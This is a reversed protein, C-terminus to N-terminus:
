EIVGEAALWARVAPRQLYQRAIWAANHSSTFYTRHVFVVLVARPADAPFYGAVWAHKPVRERGDPFLRPEDAVDASGTKAAMVFGLETESLSKHATGGAENSVTVLARRVRGLSEASLEIRRTEPALPAGGLERVLRVEPLRGTALGATARAIQMPTAEVIGLGNSAELFNRSTFKKQFLRPVSDERLGARGGPRENPGFSKVGTPQGFGFQEAMAVFDERTFHAEGLWAFYSNCSGKLAGALDVTGHGHALWCGLGKYGADASGANGAASCTLTRAPDLGLRDLAFAAVFPKFVSGAPQFDPKQLTRERAQDRVSTTGDAGPRDVVPVSAAALVEGDVTMLVLAGTPRAAWADDQFQPDPDLAPHELCYLAERQLELDLTSVLPLGDVKAVDQHSFRRGREAREQL